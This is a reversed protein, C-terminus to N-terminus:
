DSMSVTLSGLWVKKHAIDFIPHTHSIQLRSYASAILKTLV